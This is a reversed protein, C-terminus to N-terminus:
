SVTNMDPASIELSSASLPVEMEFTGDLQSLTSYGDMGVVRIMAVTVAKGTTASVVRGKVMRVPCEKKLSAVPVGEHVSISDQAVVSSGHLLLFSLGYLYYKKM